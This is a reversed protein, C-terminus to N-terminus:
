SPTPARARDAGRRAGPLRRARRDGRRRPPPGARGQELLPAPAGALIDKKTILGRIRRDGDVLPLKEVRREHVHAARGGRDLHGAPGTVLRDVPTMFEEVPDTTRRRAGRGTATRSSGPSSAAARRRRSSSAPSTTGGRSSARRGSAARRAGPLLPRDVVHGQTRKVRAVERRRARSRCGAICSASGARWRWRWRWGRTPSATWTPPSSPCSSAHAAADAADALPVERRSALPSAQPRFLFDDYTRGVFEPELARGMDAETGSVSSAPAAVCPGSAGAPRSWALSGRPELPRRDAAPRRDADSRVGLRTRSRRSRAADM